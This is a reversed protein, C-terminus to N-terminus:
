DFGVDGQSFPAPGARVGQKGKDMEGGKKVSARPGREARARGSVTQTGKEATEIGGLHPHLPTGQGTGPLYSKDGKTSKDM